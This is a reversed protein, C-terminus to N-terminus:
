LVGLLRSKTVITLDSNRKFVDKGLHSLTSFPVDTQEKFVAGVRRGKGPGQSGVEQKAEGGAASM